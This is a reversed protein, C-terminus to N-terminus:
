ETKKADEEVNAYLRAFASQLKEKVLPVHKQVAPGAKAAALDIADNALIAPLILLLTGFTLVLFTGSFLSGLFSALLAFLVIKITVPKPNSNRITNLDDVVEQVYFRAGVIYNVIEKLTLHKKADRTKKGLLPQVPVAVNESAWWYFYYTAVGLSFLSFFSLNNLLTATIGVFVYFSVLLLGFQVPRELVLISQVALVTEEHSGLKELLKQRYESKKVQLQGLSVMKKSKQKNLAVVNGDRQTLVAAGHV